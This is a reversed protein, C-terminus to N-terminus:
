GMRVIIEVIEELDDFTDIQSVRKVVYRFNPRRVRRYAHTLPLLYLRSDPLPPPTSILHSLVHLPSQLATVCGERIYLSFDFM